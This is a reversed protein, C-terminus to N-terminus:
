ERKTTAKRAHRSAGTTRRGEKTEAAGSQMPSKDAANQSKGNSNARTAPPAPLQSLDTLHVSDSADEWGSAADAVTVSVQGDAQRIGLIRRRAMFRSCKRTSEMLAICLDCDLWPTQFQGAQLAPSLQQLLTGLVQPPLGQPLQVCTAPAFLNAAAPSKMIEALPNFPERMRLESECDIWVKWMLDELAPEEKIKLGIQKAETRGVAHGHHYFKKNLIEAIEKARVSEGEGTMHTRLLNEGLTLSLLSGRVALGVTYTGTDDLLKSVVTSLAAQDTIHAHERIFQLFSVVEEFGFRVTEEGAGNQKKRRVTVQPDVPGLNGYPHMVIEDAGLCLLTAASFASQPVLVGVHKFRERMLCITRWAVSAEGGGSVVLLDAADQDSPIAALQDLLEPIVDGAMSGSANPRFSTVYTILPRQRISEIQRYLRLRNEIAM